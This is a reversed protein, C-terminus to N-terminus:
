IPALGSESSAAKEDLRGKKSEHEPDFPTKWLIYSLELLKCQIAVAAKMKIGHKAVNRAFHSKYVPCHRIASLVPFHLAKRLHRNGKQSVRAKGKVSIGSQKHRVALGAYSALQRKNAILEFGIRSITSPWPFPEDLEYGLFWPVNRYMELGYWTWRFAQLLAM